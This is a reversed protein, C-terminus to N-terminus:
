AAAELNAMPLPRRRATYLCAAAITVAGAVTLPAVAEGFVVYGLVSAWLFATYEVPALYYAEARAYAWSLAMLSTVGMAAALLLMPAHEADPLVAFFPAALALFAAMTLSQYFAAENADAVLSQRRMLILNYAYCVASVLIAASGALAEAGIEAHAQGALILLVGGSALVSGGVARRTVKEKLLVGAFFIAILPAIFTLAVAQAMPVRALGWFFLFAMAAGVAGRWLHLRMVARTPWKPGGALYLAGAIAVGALSRWFLANYAGIELSLGKMVADMGSFIAIGGSAVAFAVAPRVASLEGSLDSRQGM